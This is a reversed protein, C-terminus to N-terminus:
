VVSKRDKYDFLELNSPAGAMHLYIVRRARPAFQPALPALPQTPDRSFDLHRSGHAAEGSKASGNLSPLVTGLFMAGLGTSCQRLFHRRKLDALGAEAIADALSQRDHKM